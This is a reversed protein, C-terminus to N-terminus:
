DLKRNANYCKRVLKLDMITRIVEFFNAKVNIGTRGNCCNEM